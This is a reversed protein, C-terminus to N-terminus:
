WEFIRGSKIQREAGSCAMKYRHWTWESHSEGANRTGREFAYIAPISYGTLESLQEISLKRRERWAKAQECTKM